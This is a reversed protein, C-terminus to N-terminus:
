SVEDSWDGHASITIYKNSNWDEVNCENRASWRIPAIAVNESGNQICEAAYSLAKSLTNFEADPVRPGRLSLEDGDFVGFKDTTTTEIM